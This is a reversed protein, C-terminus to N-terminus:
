YRLVICRWCNEHLVAAPPVSCKEDPSLTVDAVNVTKMEGTVVFVSTIKVVVTTGRVECLVQVVHCMEKAWNV